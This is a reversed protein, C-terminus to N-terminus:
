KNSVKNILEVIKDTGNIVQNNMKEIYKHSNKLTDKIKNLLTINTLNEEFLVNAFGNQEFDKANLIQDGRGTSLPIILMPKKLALIEFISNSGGRTIVLDACDFYNEIDNAFELQHYNTYAISTDIKGKGTIHIINYETLKPLIKRVANNLNSAGLSGGIVLITKKNKDLNHRSIIVNKAGKFIQERIATGTFIGNEVQTMTSKFSTCVYKCKKAMIKNALGLTFDSEHTICPIKLKSGAFVVPVSVYGGKSFIVCPNIKKLIKKTKHISSLLIFPILMNKLTIKRVLKVTPIEIFKVDYNKLIEKEMGNSAIYYIEDFQKKLKPLLAINPMIHGATGGGTLVITKKNNKM